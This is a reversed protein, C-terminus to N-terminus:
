PQPSLPLSLDSLPVAPFLLLFVAITTLPEIKLIYNEQVLVQRQTRFLPQCVLPDNNNNSRSNNQGRKEADRLSAGFCMPVCTGDVSLCLLTRSM